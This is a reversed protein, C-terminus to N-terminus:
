KKNAKNLWEKNNSKKACAKLPFENVVLDDTKDTLNDLEEFITKISKETWVLYVSKNTEVAENDDFWKYLKPYNDKNKDRLDYVIILRKM